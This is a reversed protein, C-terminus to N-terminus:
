LCGVFEGYNGESEIASPGLRREPVVQTRGAHAHRNATSRYSRFLCYSLLLFM